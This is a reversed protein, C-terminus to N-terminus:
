RGTETAERGSKFFRYVRIRAVNSNVGVAAAADEWTYGEVFRLWSVSWAIPENLKIMFNLYKDTEPWTSEIDTEIRKIRAQIFHVEEKADADSKTINELLDYSEHLLRLLAYRELLVPPIYESVRASYKKSMVSKWGEQRAIPIQRFRRFCINRATEETLGVCFGVREWTYGHIFRLRTVAWAVPDSQLENILSVAEAEGDYLVREINDIKDQLFVEEAETGTDSSRLTELLDYANELQQLAEFRKTLLKPVTTM